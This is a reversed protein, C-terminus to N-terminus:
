NFSELQQRLDQFAQLVSGTNNQEFKDLLSFAFQKFSNEEVREVKAPVCNGTIKNILVETKQKIGKMTVNEKHIFAELKSKIQARSTM